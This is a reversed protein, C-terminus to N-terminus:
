TDPLLSMIVAIETGVFDYQAEPYMWWKNRIKLWILKSLNLCIGYYLTFVMKYGHNIIVPQDVTEHHRRKTASIKRMESSIARLLQLKSSLLWFQNLYRRPATLCCAMVQVLIWASRLLWIANNPAQSKCLAYVLLENVSEVCNVLILRFLKWSSFLIKSFMLM